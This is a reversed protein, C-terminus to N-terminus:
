KHSIYSKSDVNLTVRKMHKIVHPDTSLELFLYPGDEPDSEDVRLTGIPKQKIVFRTAVCGLAFCLACILVEM